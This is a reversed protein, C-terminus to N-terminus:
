KLIDMSEDGTLFEIDSDGGTARMDGSPLTLGTSSFAVEETSVDESLKGVPDSM